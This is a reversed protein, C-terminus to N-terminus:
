KRSEKLYSILVFTNIVPFICIIFVCGLFFTYEYKNSFYPINDCDSIAFWALLIATLLYAGFLAALVLALTGTIAYPIM